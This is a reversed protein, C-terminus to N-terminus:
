FEEMGAYFRFNADAERELEEQRLIRNLALWWPLPLEDAAEYLMERGEPCLSVRDEDDHCNECSELHGYFNDVHDNKM